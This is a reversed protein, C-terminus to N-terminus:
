EKKREDKLRNNLGKFENRILLAIAIAGWIVYGVGDVHYDLREEISPGFFMLALILWPINTTEINM